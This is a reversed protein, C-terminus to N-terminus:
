AAGEFKNKGIKILSALIYTPDVSKEIAIGINSFTGGKSSGFGIQRGESTIEIRGNWMSIQIYITPSNVTRLEYKQGSWNSTLSAVVQENYLFVASTIGSSKFALFVEDDSNILVGRSNFFGRAESRFVLQNADDYIRYTATHWWKKKLIYKNYDM